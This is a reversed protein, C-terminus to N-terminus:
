HFIWDNSTIVQPAVHDLDAVLIPTVHSGKGGQEFYVDTGSAGDSVFSLWGDAVPNSGAYHGASFLHSLDLKDTGPVFDAIQAANSPLQTFVFVDKGPGATLVGPNSGLTITASATAVGGSTQGQTGTDGDPNSGNTTSQSSNGTASSSGSDNGTLIIATAVAAGLNAGTAQTLTFTFTDDNQVQSADQVYVTVTEQSAGPDFTVSGTPYADNQFDQAGAPQSGDGQVMWNVQATGSLNYSRSLTFTYATLGSSAVTESLSTPSLLILAPTVAAANDIYYIQDQSSNGAISAVIRGASNTGLIDGSLTTMPGYWGDGSYAHASYARSDIESGSNWSVAFGGEGTAIIHVDATGPGLEQKTIASTKSNFV